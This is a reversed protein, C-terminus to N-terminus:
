TYKHKTKTTTTKKLTKTKAAPTKEDEEEEAYRGHRLFYFLVHLLLYIPRRQLPELDQM